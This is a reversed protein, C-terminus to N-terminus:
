AQFKIEWAFQDLLKRRMRTKAAKNEGLPKVDAHSRNDIQLDGPAYIPSHRVELGIGRLNGAVFSVIANKEPNSARNLSDISSSYREWDTSMSKQDGSGRERFAGPMVEGERFDNIHIRYFLKDPDMIEEGKYSM